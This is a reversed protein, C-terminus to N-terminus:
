VYKNLNVCCEDNMLKQLNSNPKGGGCLSSNVAKIAEEYNEEEATVKSRILDKIQTKEKYTVPLRNENQEQWM